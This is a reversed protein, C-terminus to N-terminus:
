PLRNCSVRNCRRVTAMATDAAANTASAKAINTVRSDPASNRGSDRLRTLM